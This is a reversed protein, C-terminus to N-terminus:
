PEQNQASTGTFFEATDSTASSIGQRQFVRVITWLLIKLDLWISQNDVYWVDLSFKQEWALANRGNVQAWGTIGPKVEHRRAQRMSYLPLYQPLLPRPGVVSMDGRLVNVLTPLEDISTSRLLKGFGTLREGDTLLAGAGDVANTMTRFKVLEFLKGHLGTRRQTFLVPAGMRMRVVIAVVLMLPSFVLLAIVALFIETIRKLM